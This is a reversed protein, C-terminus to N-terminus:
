SKNKQSELIESLINFSSTKGEGMNEQSSPVYELGEEDIWAVVSVFDAVFSPITCRVLAANGRMVYEKGLIEPDYGQNAVIPFFNM